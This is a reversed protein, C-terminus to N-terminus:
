SGPYGMRGGQGLLLPLCVSSARVWTGPGRRGAIGTDRERGVRGRQAKLLPSRRLDM